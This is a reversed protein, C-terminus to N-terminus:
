GRQFPSRQQMSQEIADDQLARRSAAGAAYRDALSRLDDQASVHKEGSSRGTM